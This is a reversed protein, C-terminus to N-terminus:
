MNHEKTYKSIDEEFGKLEGNVEELDIITEPKATSVYRSINLNFDNKAKEMGEKCSQLFSLDDFTNGEALMAVKYIQEPINEDKKKCAAIVILALITLLLIIKSIKKM